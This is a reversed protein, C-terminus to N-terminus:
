KHVKKRKVNSKLWAERYMSQVDSHVINDRAAQRWDIRQVNIKREFGRLLRMKPWQNPGFRGQMMWIGPALQAHDLLLFPKGGQARNRSLIRLYVHARHAGTPAPRRVNHLMGKTSKRKFVSQMDFNRDSIFAKNLRTGQTIKNQESGKRAKLAAPTRKLEGSTIQESWGSFREEALSGAKAVQSMIPSRGNAREFRLQRSLFRKDRVVMKDSIIEMEETRTKVALETLYYAVAWQQSRSMRRLEAAYSVIGTKVKMDM